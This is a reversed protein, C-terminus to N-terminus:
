RSRLGGPAYVEPFSVVPRQIVGLTELATLITETTTLIGPEGLLVRPFTLQTRTTRFKHTRNCARPLEASFTLTSGEMDGREHNTVFNYFYTAGTTIVLTPSPHTYTYTAFDTAPIHLHAVGTKPPDLAVIHVGESTFVLSVTEYLIIPVLRDEFRNYGAYLTKIEAGGKFGAVLARLSDTQALTAIAVTNAMNSTHKFNSSSSLQSSTPTHVTHHSM